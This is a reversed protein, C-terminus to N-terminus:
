SAPLPATNSPPSSPTSNQLHTRLDAKLADVARVRNAFARQLSLPPCIILFDKLDSLTVTKQAVGKAVRDAQRRIAPSELLVELFQPDLKSHDPKIQAVHRQFLFPTDERVVASNGYSGVATYLVDGVEIPCNRTLEKYTEQSVFKDTSLNITRHRINSVFIFPIGSESWQPAQHTGDTIRVCLIHLPVFEFDGTDSEADGFMEAFIAQPLGEIAEISASRKRRLEDAQDLMAAICKQEQLPPLPIEIQEAQGKTLKARTSGSIFPTVDYNELVRCLFPLDLGNRPKIVHAHNNVWSKGSIRYAIGREPADFFGGDEALLILPEDFIFGDITGQQGNAGYYPYPGPKRDSEKVPRRMSDLFEAVEGLPKVPFSGRVSQKTIM